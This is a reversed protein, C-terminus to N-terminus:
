KKNMQTCKKHGNGPPNSDFTQITALPISQSDNAEIGSYNISFLLCFLAPLPFLRWFFRCRTGLISQTIRMRRAGTRARTRTHPHAQELACLSIPPRILIFSRTHTLSFRKYASEGHIWYHHSHIECIFTFLNAHVSPNRQILLPLSLSVRRFFQHHLQWFTWSSMPM